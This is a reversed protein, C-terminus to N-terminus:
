YKREVFKIRIEGTIGAGTDKEIPNFTLSANSVAFGIKNLYANVNKRIIELDEKNFCIM